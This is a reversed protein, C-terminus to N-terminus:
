QEEQAIPTDKRHGEDEKQWLVPTEFSSCISFQSVRTALIVIYRKLAISVVCKVSAPVLKVDMDISNTSISIQFPGSKLLTSKENGWTVNQTQFPPFRYFQGHSQPHSYRPSHLGHLGSYRLQRGSFSM